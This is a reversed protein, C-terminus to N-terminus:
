RVFPIGTGVDRRYDAYKTGFFETLYKEERPIRNRYYVHLTVFFAVLCVSNGLVLQTGIAWWYYGFYSPHRVWGYLGATVLVHDPKRMEQLVHNFSRGAQAMAVSRVVQGAAVALLGSLALLDGAARPLWARFSLGPPLADGALVCELAAAGHAVFYGPGNGTLLFLTTSAVRTNYRAQTWFELFHSASLAALLFPLRWLPSSTYVAIALASATGAAFAGGLCFARVAIGALSRPQGPHYQKEPDATDATDATDASARSGAPVLPDM